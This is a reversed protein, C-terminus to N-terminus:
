SVAGHRDVVSLYLKCAAFVDNASAANASACGIWM